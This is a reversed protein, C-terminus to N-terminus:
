ELDTPKNEVIFSKVIFDDSFIFFNLLNKFPCPPNGENEHTKLLGVLNEQYHVGLFLSRTYWFPLFIIKFYLQPFTVMEFCAWLM